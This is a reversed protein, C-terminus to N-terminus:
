RHLHRAEEGMISQSLAYKARQAVQMGAQRMTFAQQTDQFQATAFPTNMSTKAMTRGMQGVTEAGSVVAGPIEKAVSYGMYAMPGLVYGLALDMGGEAASAIFGRGENRADSYTGYAFYSNVAFGGVSGFVKSAIKEKVGM